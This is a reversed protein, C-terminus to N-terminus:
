INKIINANIFELIEQHKLEQFGNVLLAFETIVKFHEEKVPKNNPGFQQVVESKARDLEITALPINKSNRISLICSIGNKVKTKYNSGGVCNQMLKGEYKLDKPYLLYIFHEKDSCRFIIRDNDVNPISISEVNFESFKNIHWKQQAEYATKFSYTFVDARTTIVWDIVLRIDTFRNLISNDNKIEKAIWVDYKHNRQEQKSSNQSQENGVFGIKEGIESIKKVLINAESESMYEKGKSKHTPIFFTKIYQERKTLEM